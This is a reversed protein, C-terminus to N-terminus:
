CFRRRSRIQIRGMGWRRGEDEVLGEEVERRGEVEWEERKGEVGEVSGEGSDGKVGAEGKM